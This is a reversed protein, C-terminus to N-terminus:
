MERKSYIISSIKYSILLIIFTLLLLIYNVYDKLFSLDLNFDLNIFKIILGGILALAFALVFIFIRAKEIGLKFIVPYLISIVLSIGFIIALSMDIAEKFPTNKIIMELIAGVVLSLVIGIISTLYKSRVTNKRGNPLSVAYLDWKNYNDYNFTTLMFLMSFFPIVFLIDMEGMYIMIGYLIIVMLLTKLNGKVVFLDKKIFGLM